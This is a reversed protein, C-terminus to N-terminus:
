AVSVTAFRCKVWAGGESIYFSSDTTNYYMTGEEPVPDPPTAAETIELYANPAPPLDAVKQSDAVPYFLQTAGQTIDDSNDVAKNFLNSIDIRSGVKM